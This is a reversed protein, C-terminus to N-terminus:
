REGVDPNTNAQDSIAGEHGGGNADVYDKTALEKGNSYVKKFRAQGGATIYAKESSTTQQQRTTATSRFCSTAVAALALSSRSTPLLGFSLVVAIPSVANGNNCDIRAYGSLASQRDINTRSWSGTFLQHPLM